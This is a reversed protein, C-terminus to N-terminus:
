RTLYAPLRNAAILARLAATHKCHGHRCFGKCECLDARGRGDTDICVAYGAPGGKVQAVFKRLTFAMGYDSPMRDIWYCWEETGVTLVLVGCREIHAKRAPKAKAAKSSTTTATTM